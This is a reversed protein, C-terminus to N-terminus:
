FSYCAMSLAGYMMRSHLSTAKHAFGAGAAVFVPALHETTPHARRCLHHQYIKALETNREEGEHKVLLERLHGDFEEAYNQASPNPNGMLSSLDRLNHTASGSGIVLVDEDQLAALAQGVKLHFKPDLQSQLSVQILPVDAKPFVISLPSWAGHDLGHDTDALAPIKANNLLELVRKSVEGHGSPRYKFDYM